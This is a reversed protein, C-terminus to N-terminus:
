RLAPELADMLQTIRPVGSVRLLEAGARDFAIVTPTRLVGLDRAVEPRDAIDIEVHRVGTTGASLEGLVVAAQRCPTCVPSSLQLLLVRGTPGATEGALRWGDAAGSSARVRGSRLRLAIGLVGALLLTGVLVAIGATSM